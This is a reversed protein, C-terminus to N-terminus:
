NVCQGMNSGYSIMPMIMAKAAEEELVHIYTNYTTTTNSHGMLRSVISIEVGKRILESGFTHRLLHVWLHPLETGDIIMNLSRQISRPLAYSGTESCCVIGSEINNEKNCKIIENMIFKIEDNMPIIRNSKKTKPSKILSQRKGDIKVNYQMSKSIRIINSTFDIDNWELAIAEGIRMGTNLMLLLTLGYRYKYSDNTRNKQLCAEKFLHIQDPSLSFTERRKSNCFKEKPIIVGEMPNYIIDKNKIAHSYVGSVFTYVTKITGYGYQKKLVDFLKQLEDSRLSGFQKNALKSKKIQQEVIISIRNHTSPEISDKKNYVYNLCYDYLTATKPNILGDDYERIIAKLKRKCESETKGYTYKTLGNLTVRGEFRGDSRLRVNGEHWSNRKSQKKTVSMLKERRFLTSCNLCNLVNIIVGM